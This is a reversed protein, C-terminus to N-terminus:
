SSQRPITSTQCKMHVITMEIPPKSSLPYIGSIQLLNSVLKAREEHVTPRDVIVFIDIDSFRQLGGVILSGFLYVGLLDQGFVDKLLTLCQSIQEEIQSDHYSNM